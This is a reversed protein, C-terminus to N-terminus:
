GRSISDLWEAVDKKGLSRALESATQGKNNKVRGDAGREVLLKTVSLHGGLAAWHLPTYKLYDVPDVKAGWDLLLRCVELYGYFAAKHLANRQNANVREINAGGELLVRVAAVHRNAAAFILPTNRYQDDTTCSDNTCKFLIKVTNVDGSEAAELLYQCAQLLFWFTDLIDKTYCLPHCKINHREASSIQHRHAIFCQLLALLNRYPSLFFVHCCQIHFKNQIDLVAFM